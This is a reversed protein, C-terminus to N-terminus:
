YSQNLYKLLLNQFERYYPKELYVMHSGGPIIELSSGDPLSDLCSNVLDYNLYPDQDGCIVLTPTSIQTLDILEVSSDVCVDKRGGNPSSEGDYHWCSSCWWERIVPDTITDDILGDSTRQFDDAAHEWTNHHFPETVTYEGVGSLIPAYLILKNIREPHASAFRSVTVTGWSWGLVDIRDLGTEQLLMEVAANIDEAAYDSDPMFGDEVEESQGFGAIDLRWVAYGERALFRVLSYDEYDIDFEHSSYTVGHILLISKAPDTGKEWVCDLHLKIDNRELPYEAYDYLVASGHEQEKEAKDAYNCSCFTLVCLVLCMIGTIISKYNMVEITSETRSTSYRM